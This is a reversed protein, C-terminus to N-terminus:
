LIRGGAQVRYGLTIPLVKAGFMTPIKITPVEGELYVM